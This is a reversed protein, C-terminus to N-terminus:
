MLIACLFYYCLLHFQVLNNQLFGAILFKGLVILEVSETDKGSKNEAQLTYIGADKRSAEIISFDTHYDRNEITIRETNSLAVSDRWVWSITPPPEGAVDVSWKHARGVKITVTKLTTRDIRPKVASFIKQFNLSIPM